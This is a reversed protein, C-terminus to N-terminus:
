LKKIVEFGNDPFWGFWGESYIPEDNEIAVGNFKYMNNMKDILEAQYMSYKPVKGANWNSALTSNSSPHLVNDNVKILYMNGVSLLSSTVRTVKPIIIETTDDDYKLETSKVKSLQDKIVKNM